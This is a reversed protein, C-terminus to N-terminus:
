VNFYAVLALEQDLSIIKVLANIALKAKNRDYEFAALIRPFVIQMYTAYAGMYWRPKLGIRRHITGIRLRDQLYEVDYKGSTLRVFYQKQLKKVRELVSADTFFTKLEEFKLWHAYLEEMVQDAYTRAIIHLERLIAEDSESFGVFLKRREWEAATVIGGLNSNEKIAENAVFCGGNFYIENCPNDVGVGALPPCSDSESNPNRFESLGVESVM